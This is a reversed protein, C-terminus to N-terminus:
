QGFNKWALAHKKSVPQLCGVIKKWLEENEDSATVLSEILGTAVATALQENESCIGSEIHQFLFLKETESLLFLQGAINKGIQSFLLITPVPEPAWYEIARGVTKKIEESRLTFFNIYDNIYVDM